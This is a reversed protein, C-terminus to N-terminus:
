VEARLGALRDAEARVQLEVEWGERRIRLDLYSLYRVVAFYAAVTWMAAPVGITYVAGTREWHHTLLGRIYWLSLALGCTMVVGFLMSVLFRSFLTSRSGAHLSNSRRSTTIRGPRASFPNRELLIIENLYPSYVFPVLWLLMLFFAWWDILAPLILLGRLLVQYIFLQPLSDRLERAIRSSSPRDLFLAHGFYRTLPAAALPLEWVTLITLRYIYLAPNFAHAVVHSGTFRYTPEFLSLLWGNLLAFPLAGIISLTAWPFIYFRLTRLSLDLIDPFDRERIVIRTNDLQM